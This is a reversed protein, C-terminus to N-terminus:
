LKVTIILYILLGFGLSSKAAFLQGRMQIMPTYAMLPSSFSDRLVSELSVHPLVTDTNTMEFANKFRLTKEM